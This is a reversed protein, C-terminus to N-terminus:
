KESAAPKRVPLYRMPLPSRALTLAAASHLLVQIRAAQADEGREVLDRLAMPALGACTASAHSMARGPTVAGMALAVDSACSPLQDGRRPEVSSASASDCARDLWRRPTPRAPGVRAPMFTSLALRGRDRRGDGAARHGTIYSSDANSALFVYAPRSRKPSRPGAWRATRASSRSEEGAAPGGDSPNLPTWVPGPRSRTSASAADVLTRRWRRPSRTSRARPRRITPCNRRAWSARRRARPSSRRQGRKMHRLAARALRFYAYINTKFTRDFEEDTVDELVGQPEPARRQLRPHRAQRVGEGHARRARRLIRRRHPRGPMLLCRAATRKSSRAARRRPTPRSRAASVRDRRGRRRARVARGGRPRHGLRRRHDARGQGCAKRGRPIAGGRLAAAARAEIRPRAEDQHQKPFPPTPSRTARSPDAIGEQGESRKRTETKM